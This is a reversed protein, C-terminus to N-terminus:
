NSPESTIIEIIANLATGMARDIPFLNSSLALTIEEAPLYIVVSGYGPADGWHGIGEVGGPFKLAMMGLGYGVQSIQPVSADSFALMEALTGDNQFLDGAMLGDMFRVLDATTTLLAMGGAAAVMSPDVQPAPLVEGPSGLFEGDIYGFAYNEPIPTDGPEPLLTNELNLPEFIRERVEVRWPQGTIEEIILSALIYNTNSYSWNEGPPFLPEQAAAIDLWEENQWIRAPNAIIEDVVEPTISDPIGTRHNLLMRVTMKDTDPFKDVITAPLIAPLPDDLSFRDEEILQFIVVAIFPKLISGARFKADPDMPTNTEINGLGSALAWPENEHNDVYLILGPFNSDPREVADNLLVQLQSGLDDETPGFLVGSFTFYGLLFVAVAVVLIFISIQKSIRKGPKHQGLTSDFLRSPTLLLVM